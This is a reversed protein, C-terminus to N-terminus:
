SEQGGLEGEIPIVPPPEHEASATITHGSFVMLLGGIIGFPAMFYWYSHWGYKQLIMGLVVGALAQGLYQFSDIVGSAFGAMKRGGIDMAAATGLLSHTSNCTFAIAVFFVVTEIPTRAFHAALLIIAAETFYLVAAVPARRSKFFMDSLYGSMLSGASAVFPMLFGLVYFIRSNLPIHHVDTMYRAFWQQQSARVGGTCFYALGTFWIGPHSVMKRFVESTKARPDDDGAGKPPQMHYFGAEEPTQKVILAMLLAVIAIVCAPGFFLWRWHLAPVSLLGMFTFGALLMPGVRNIVFVGLNIMFGFIGAFSGRERHHFWATNIKVMGPAGFSQLYGNMAWLLTFLSLQGVFSAFGFAVNVILTGIAGIIMSRKGGIRDCILGNIWQGCAYALSQMSIILGMQTDSFHFEKAIAGNAIPFNYRCLYYSTYLFGLFAWNLGRRARFGPPYVPRDIISPM